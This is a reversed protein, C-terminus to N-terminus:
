KSDLKETDWKLIPRVAGYYAGIHNGRASDGEVEDYVQFAIADKIDVHHDPKRDKHMTNIIARIRFTGESLLNGPIICSSKYLGIERPREVWEPDYMAISMFVVNENSDMLFFAPHIPKGEKLVWYEFEVRIPYRIDFSEKAIDDNACVKVSTLRVTDTGPASELEPWVREGAHAMSTSLYAGVVDLVDGDMKVKGAELLVARNCLRSIFAMNHSVVLVTRGSKGVEEMKEFSKRQFAIDGVALVEDVILIDPDLHAAVAFALRVHMGS